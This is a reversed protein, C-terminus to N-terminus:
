QICNAQYIVLYLASIVTHYLSIIIIGRMLASIHKHGKIILAILMFLYWAILYILPSQRFICFTLTYFLLFVAETIPYRPSISAHCYHCKGHLLFYSLIPIQHLVSLKHGCAPCICDATILPLAKLIRYEMTCFYAGMITGFILSSFLLTGYFIHNSM